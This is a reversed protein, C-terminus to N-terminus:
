ENITDIYRSHTHTYTHTHRHRCGEREDHAWAGMKPPFPSPHRKHLRPLSSLSPPLGARADMLHHCTYNRRWQAGSCCRASWASSALAPRGSCLLLYLLGPPPPLAVIPARLCIRCLCSRLFPPPFFSRKRYIYPSAHTRATGTTEVVSAGKPPPFPSSPCCVRAFPLLLGYRPVACLSLSSSSPLLVFTRNFDRLPLLYPRPRDAKGGERGGGGPPPSLPPPSRVALSRLFPPLFLSSLPGAGHERPPPGPRGKM